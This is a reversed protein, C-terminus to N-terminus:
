GKQLEICGLKQHCFYVNFQADDIQRLAVPFGQLSESIFFKKSNLSIMGAANVQRILSSDPYEIKALRTPYPRKSVTYRSAPPQMQLAEHPREFNYEERWTNFKRQAAKVTRFFHYQLLEVKLTRHFREDKGNTQPHRIRSFSVKIGLRILWLSFQTYRFRRVHSSAWPTGNDFNIRWPLGYEKFIKIFQAKVTEGSENSCAKLAISYRSHDDLVTLPHCRGEGLAFHGKFDAQWLDNPAEHEFRILKKSPKNSVPVILNHRHLVDTITSKAPVDREGQNLLVARIKRCGWSPKRARIALIKEELAPPTLLPSHQPRRSREKLGSGGEEKYRNLLKYGTKRSIKFRQCVASFSETGALVDEIFELKSSMPTVEKWPM